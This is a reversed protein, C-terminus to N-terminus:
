VAAKGEDCRVPFYVVGTVAAVVVSKFFDSFFEATEVQGEYLVPLIVFVPGCDMHHRFFAGSGPIIEVCQCYNGVMVPFIGKGGVAPFLGIFTHGGCCFSSGIFEQGRYDPFLHVYSLRVGGEAVPPFFHLLPYVPYEM